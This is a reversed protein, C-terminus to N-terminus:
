SNEHKGRESNVTITASNISDTMVKQLREALESEDFAGNVAEFVQRFGEEDYWIPEKINRINSDIQRRIQNLIRKDDLWYHLLSTLAFYILFIIITQM